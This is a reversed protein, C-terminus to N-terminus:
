TATRSFVFENCGRGQRTVLNDLIFGKDRCHKFIAEPTAVEFPYGGVWDVLDHWASMGREQGYARWSAGPRLHKLDLVFTWGWIVLLSGLLLLPRTTPHRVYSRKVSTWWRSIRGQDNYIAIALRGGPAVCDLANNIARWMQGTHHLV